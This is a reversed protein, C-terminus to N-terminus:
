ILCKYVIVIDILEYYCLYIYYYYIRRCNIFEGNSVNWGFILVNIVLFLYVCTQFFVSHQLLGFFYSGFFYIYFFVKKCSCLFHSLFYAVVFFNAALTLHIKPDVYKPNGFSPSISLHVVIVVCNYRKKRAMKWCFVSIKSDIQILIWFKM